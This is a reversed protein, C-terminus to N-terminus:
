VLLSFLFCFCHIMFQGLIKHKSFLLPIQLEANPGKNRGAAIHRHRYQSIYKVIHGVLNDYVRRNDISDKCFGFTEHCSLRTTGSELLNGARQRWAEAFRVVFGPKNDEEAVLKQAIGFSKDGIGLSGMVGSIALPSMYRSPPADGQTTAVVSSNQSQEALQLQTTRNTAVARLQWDRRLSEGHPGSDQWSARCTRLVRRRCDERSEGPEQVRQRMMEACFLTYGNYRKRQGDRNQSSGPM